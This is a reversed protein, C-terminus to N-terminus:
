TVLMHKIVDDTRQKLAIVFLTMLTCTGCNDHRSRLGRDIARCLRNKGEVVNGMAGSLPEFMVPTTIYEIEKSCM